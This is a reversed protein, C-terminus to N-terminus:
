GMASQLTPLSEIIITGVSSGPCGLQYPNLDVVCSSHCLIHVCGRQPDVLINYYNPSGVQHKERCLIRVDTHRGLYVQIQLIERGERGRERGKRGRERRGERERGERGGGRKSERGVPTAAPDRDPPRSPRLTYLDVRGGGSISSLSIFFFSYCDTCWMICCVGFCMMM